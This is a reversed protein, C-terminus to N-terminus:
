SPQPRDAEVAVAIAVSGAVAWVPTFPRPYRPYASAPVPASHISTWAVTFALSMIMRVPMAIM